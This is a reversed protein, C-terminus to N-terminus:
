RRPPSIADFRPRILAATTSVFNTLVISYPLTATGLAFAVLTRFPYGELKALTDAMEKATLIEIDAREVKPPKIPAAVNREIVEIAAAHNLSTRLVGHVHGISSNSLDGTRDTEQAM